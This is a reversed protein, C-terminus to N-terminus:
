WGRLYRRVVEAVGPPFVQMVNGRHIAKVTVGNVRLSGAAIMEAAGKLADQAVAVESATMAKNM